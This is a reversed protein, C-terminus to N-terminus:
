ELEKRDAIDNTLIPPPNEHRESSQTVADRKIRWNNVGRVTEVIGVGILGFFLFTFLLRGWVPDTAFIALEAVKSLAIVATLIFCMNAGWFQDFVILLAGVSLLAAVVWGLVSWNLIVTWHFHSKWLGM